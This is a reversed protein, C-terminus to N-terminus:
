KILTMKRTFVEDGAELRAIYMGSPMNAANWRINDHEGAEKVGDVLTAVKQGIMNWITLKVETEEVLEFPITTTTTFPNPYNAKLSISEPSLEDNDTVFNGTPQVILSFRDDSILEDATNFLPREQASPGTNSEVPNMTFSYSTTTQINIERNMRRDVLTIEWNAPIDEPREWSFTLEDRNPASFSLPVEIREGLDRPLVNIALRQNGINSFLNISETNLSFLKYADLPDEGVTGKNNVQLTYTDFWSEDSLKLEFSGGPRGQGDYSGPEDESNMSNANLRVLGNVEPDLYRVWFAEFPAVVDQDQLPEIAGNGNGSEANWRYLHANINANVQRLERKIAEVSLNKGFPNGLLNFGEHGDIIGDRDADTATVAVEIVEKKNEVAMTIIKPFGQQVGSERPNDDEIFYVFYGKGPATPERMDAPSFLYGGDQENWSLITAEAEPDDSGTMGQTWFDGLWDEFSVEVSSASIGQWGEQDAIKIVEIAEEQEGDGSKNVTFVPQNSLAKTRDMNLEKWTNKTDGILYLYEEKLKNERPGEYRAETLGSQLLIAGRGVELNTNRLSGESGDYQKRNTTMSALFANPTEEDTGLYAFLVQQLGSLKLNADSVTGHSASAGDTNVNTFRIIEGAPVPVDGTHWELSGEKDTFNDNQWTAHSFFVTQNASVQRLTVINFAHDSANIGVFAIDGQPQGVAYGAEAFLLGWLVIMKILFCLLTKAM